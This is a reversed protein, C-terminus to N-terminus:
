IQGKKKKSAGILEVSQKMLRNKEEPDTSDRIQRELNKMQVVKHRSEIIGFCDGLAKSLREPEDKVFFARNMFRFVRHLFEKSFYDNLHNTADDPEFDKRTKDFFLRFNDDLYATHDHVFAEIEKRFSSRELYIALIQEEAPNEDDTRKPNPKGSSVSSAGNGLEVTQPNEVGRPESKQAPTKLLHQEYWSEVKPRDIGLTGSVLGVIKEYSPLNGIEKVKRLIPITARLYEDQGSVQTIEYRNKLLDILFEELPRAKGMEQIFRDKGIRLLYEDPDKAGTLFCGMARVDPPLSFFAREAAKKGAEDSDFIFLFQKTLKELARFHDASFATGMAAVTNGIGNIHLRMADFFGEVVIAFGFEQIPKRAMDELYLIRSKNFFPTQPSNIYKPAEFSGEKRELSEVENDANELLRGSFGICAGYRDRIPFLIRRYFRSSGDQNILGWEKWRQENASETGTDKMLQHFTKVPFRLDCYGIQFRHLESIGYGREELYKLAKPHELLARHCYKAITEFTEMYLQKLPNTRDSLSQISIGYRGALEKLAEIFTIKEYEQVFKIADGTVGCGFCHYNKKVPYIYFSPTKEGHFPCLAKFYKGSQQVQIHYSSILDVINIADKVERVIEKLELDCDGLRSSPGGTRKWV